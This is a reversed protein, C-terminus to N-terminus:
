YANSNAAFAAAIMLLAKSVQFSTASSWGCEIDEKLIKQVSKNNKNSCYSERLDDDWGNDWCSYENNEDREFNYQRLPLYSCRDEQYQRQKRQWGEIWGIDCDCNLHSGAMRLRMLFKKNAAGPKHGNSPNELTKIDNDWLNVTINRVTIANEFMDRPVKSVSTNYLAFHLHPSRM